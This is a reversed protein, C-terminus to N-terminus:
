IFSRSPDWGGPETNIIQQTDVRLNRDSGAPERMFGCLSMLDM